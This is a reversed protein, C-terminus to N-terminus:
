VLIIRNNWMLSIIGKNATYLLTMLLSSIVTNYMILSRLIPLLNRGNLFLIRLTVRLLRHNTLFLHDFMVYYILMGIAIHSRTAPKESPSPRMPFIRVSNSVQNFFMVVIIQKSCPYFNRM